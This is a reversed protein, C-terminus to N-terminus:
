ALCDHLATGSAATWPGGASVHKIFAQCIFTDMHAPLVVRGAVANAVRNMM